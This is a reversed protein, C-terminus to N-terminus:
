APVVVSLNIYYQSSFGPNKHRYIGKRDLSACGLFRGWAFLAGHLESSGLSVSRSIIVRKAEVKSAPIM